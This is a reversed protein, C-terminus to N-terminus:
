VTKRHVTNSLLQDITCICFTKFLFILLFLNVNKTRHIDKELDAFTQKKFTSLSRFSLFVVKNIMASMACLKSCNVSLCHCISTWTDNLSCIYWDAMGNKIVPFALLGHIIHMCLSIFIVTNCKTSINVFVLLKM